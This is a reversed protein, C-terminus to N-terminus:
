RKAKKARNFEVLSDVRGAKYDRLSIAQQETVGAEFWSRSGGNVIGNWKKYEKKEEDIMSGLARM